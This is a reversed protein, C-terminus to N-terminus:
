LVWDNSTMWRPKRVTRKPRPSPTNSTPLDPSRPLVGVTGPPRRQPIRYRPSPPVSEVSSGETDSMIDVDSPTPTVSVVSHVDAHGEEEADLNEEESHWDLVSM